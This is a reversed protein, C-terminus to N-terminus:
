ITNEGDGRQILSPPQRGWHIRIQQFSKRENLLVKKKTMKKKKDKSCFLFMVLEHKSCVSVNWDILMFLFMKRRLKKSPELVVRVGDEIFGDSSNVRGSPLQKYNLPM